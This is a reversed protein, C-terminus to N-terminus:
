RSTGSNLTNICNDHREFNYDSLTSTGALVSSTTPVEVHQHQYIWSTTLHFVVVKRLVIFTNGM